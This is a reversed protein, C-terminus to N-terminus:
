DSTFYIVLVFSDALNESLVLEQFLPIYEIKYKHKAIKYTYFKAFKINKVILRAGLMIIPGM